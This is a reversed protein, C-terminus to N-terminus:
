AAEYSQPFGRGSESTSNLYKLKRMMIESLRASGNSETFRTRKQKRDQELEWTILERFTKM